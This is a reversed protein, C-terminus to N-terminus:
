ADRAPPKAGDAASPGWLGRADEEERAIRAAEDKVIQNYSKTPTPLDEPRIGESALWGRVTKGAEFHTRNADRVTHIGLRAMRGEAIVARLVNAMTEIAGMWNSIEERPALEKYEHIDDETEGRYLGRYGWNMFRAFQEATIIGADRARRMLQKHAETLEQRRMIRMAIEALPNNGVEAVLARLVEQGRTMVVFYAKAAAVPEKTGDASLAIMYCAFRTLRYDRAPRGGTSKKTIDSFLIDVNYGQSHSAAKAEIIAHEFNQWAGAGTYGLEKALERALWFEGHEDEHRITDFASRGDSPPPLQPHSM